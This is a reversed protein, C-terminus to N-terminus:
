SIEQSVSPNNRDWPLAHKHKFGPFDVIVAKPLFDNQKDNPGCVTDYVFDVITGRAGNFLGAKPVINHGSIAVTAGVCLDAHEVM